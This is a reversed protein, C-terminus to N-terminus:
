TLHSASKLISLFKLSKLNNKCSLWFSGEGRPLKQLSYCNLTIMQSLGARSQTREISIWNSAIEGTIYNCCQLIWCRESKTEYLDCNQLWHIRWCHVPSMASNRTIQSISKHTHNLASSNCNCTDLYISNAMYGLTFILFTHFRSSGTDRITYISLSILSYQEM